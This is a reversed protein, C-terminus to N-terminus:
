HGVAIVIVPAVFVITGVWGLRLARAASAYLRYLYARRTTSMGTAHWAPCSAVLDKRILTAGQENCRSRPRSSSLQGACARVM